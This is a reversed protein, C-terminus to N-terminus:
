TITGPPGGICRVAVPVSVRRANTRIRWSEVCGGVVGAGSQVGFPNHSARQLATRRAGSMLQCFLLLKLTRWIKGDVNLLEHLVTHTLFYHLTLKRTDLVEEGCHSCYSEGALRRGCSACVAPTEVADTM